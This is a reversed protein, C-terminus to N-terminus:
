AYSNLLPFLFRIQEIDKFGKQKKELLPFMTFENM